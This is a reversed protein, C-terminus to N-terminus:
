LSLPPPGPSTTDLTGSALLADLEDILRARDQPFRGEMPLINSSHNARFVTRELRLRELM